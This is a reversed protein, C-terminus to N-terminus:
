SAPPVSAPQQLPPDFSGDADDSQTIHGKGHPSRPLTLTFISGVGLRSQVRLTGGMAHALRQSIALGLGAGGGDRGGSAGKAQEFPHFCTRQLEEDMGRGNDAVAITTHTEGIAVDVDICGQETFKNANTLLNTLVQGLRLPDVHLTPCPQPIHLEITNQQQRAAPLLRDRLEGLLRPLDVPRPNLELRDAEIRSMDLLDNVIALLHHGARHIRVLDAQVDDDDIDEELMEAYGIIANLPTRLEHSMNGLFTTKAMSARVADDRASQAEDRADRMGELADEAKRTAVRWGHDFFGMFITNMVVVLGLTLLNVTPLAADPARFTWGAQTAAFLAIIQAVVVVASLIGVRPGGAIYGLTSLFLLGMAAPAMPGYGTWVVFSVSILCGLITLASCTWPRRTLWIMAPSAGVIVTGLALSIGQPTIGRPIVSILTAIFMPAALGLALQVAVHGERAVHHGGVLDAPLLRATWSTPDPPTV